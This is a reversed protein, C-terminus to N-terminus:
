AHIKLLDSVNGRCLPCENNHLGYQCDECICLHMCPRIVINRPKELCISCVHEEDDLNMNTKVLAELLLSGALVKFDPRDAPQSDMCANIIDVVVKPYSHPMQPKLSGDVVGREVDDDDDVTVYPRWPIEQTWGRLEWIEWLLVGFSWVDSKESFLGDRLAEPSMWRVVLFLFIFLFNTHLM